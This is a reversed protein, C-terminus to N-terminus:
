GGRGGIAVLRPTPHHGEIESPTVADLKDMLNRAAQLTANRPQSPAPGARAVPPAPEDTWRDQNLWTSPNCWPRDDTKAVYRRLGAMLTETDVRSAAREFAKSADAKGVKHPYVTWFADFARERTEKKEEQPEIESTLTKDEVRAGEGALQKSANAVTPLRKSVNTSQREKWNRWRARAKEKGAESAAATATEVATLMDAVAKAQEESLGITAMKMIVETPITL